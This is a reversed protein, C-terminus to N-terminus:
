SLQRKLVFLLVLPVAIWQLVPVLGVGIFPVVPMLESYGWSQIIRVNKIESFVTYIVGLGVFILIKNKTLSLFWTRNNFIIAVLWFCGLTILIDGVTCHFRYWLITSFEEGRDDFFPTQLVEWTFNLFFSFFVMNLEPLQIVKKMTNEIKALNTGLTMMDFLIM